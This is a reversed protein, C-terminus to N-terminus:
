LSRPRPNDGRGRGGYVVKYECVVAIRSEAAPSRLQRPPRPLPLAEHELAVDGIGEQQVPPLALHPDLSHESRVLM